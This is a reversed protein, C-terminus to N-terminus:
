PLAEFPLPEGLDMSGDGPLPLRLDGDVPRQLHLGPHWFAIHGDADAYTTNENWTVLRMAAEFDTLDRARNWALIGEVTDIERGAMHYQVARALRTPEGPVPDQQAVIPGHVTRCVEVTETQ